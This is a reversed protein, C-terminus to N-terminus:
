LLELALALTKDASASSDIVIDAVSEYIPKRYNYRAIIDEEGGATLPRTKDGSIRRLTEEIGCDLLILRGAAKLYPHNKENVALGGGLSIIYGEKESLEKILETELSRFFAEGDCAFIEAITRGQRRVIEEDTDILPMCLAESLGKALTSKGSGMFGCLIINKM